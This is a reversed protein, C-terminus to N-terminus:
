GLLGFLQSSHDLSLYLTWLLHLSSHFSNLKLPLQSVAVFLTPMSRTGDSDIEMDERDTQVMGVKILSLLSLSVQGPERTIGEVAEVAENLQEYRDLPEHQHQQITSLTALRPQPSLSNRTSISSNFARDRKFPSVKSRASWADISVLRHEVRSAIKRLINNLFTEVAVNEIAFNVVVREWKM